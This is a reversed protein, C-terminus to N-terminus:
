NKRELYKSVGFKESKRLYMKFMIYEKGVKTPSWVLTRLWWIKDLVDEIDDKFARQIKVNNGRQKLKLHIRYM